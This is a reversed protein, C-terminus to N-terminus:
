RWDRRCQLSLVGLAAQTDRPPLVVSVVQFPVGAKSSTGGRRKPPDVVPAPICDHPVTAKVTKRVMPEPVSRATTQSEATESGSDAEKEQGRGFIYRMENSKTLLIM